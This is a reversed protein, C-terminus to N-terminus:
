RLYTRTKKANAESIAKRGGIKGFPIKLSEGDCGYVVLGIDARKDTPFSFGSLDRLNLDNRGDIQVNPLSYLADTGLFGADRFAYIGVSRIGQKDTVVGELLLHGGSIYAQPKSDYTPGERDRKAGACVDDVTVIVRKPKEKEEVPEDTEPVVPIVLIEETAEPETAETDNCGPMFYGGLLGAGVLAAGVGAFKGNRKNVWSPMTVMKKKNGM